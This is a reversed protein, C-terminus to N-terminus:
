ESTLVSGLLKATVDVIPIVRDYAMRTPGIVGLVGVVQDDVNYPATVVSCDGLPSYGSEDGIFIQIGEAHISHDLIHLIDRKTNFAEFLQRLKDMDGMETYGMLNTEGAIVYDDVKSEALVQDAMEMATRMISNMDERAQQMERVLGDRTTSLDHGAFTANLYNATQTLEAPSYTRGTHIIRNEVEQENVILIVLVRNASLPLFEIHRLITQGRRPVMVVGAMQTIGSLLSSAKAIVSEHSSDQTLELKLKDIINHRLPKVTLLYDVFMRYGQDTPIRGASTHPSIILGVDELDSMVNRITAPSLNLEKTKALTRSGVPQGSQIYLEVLIKLLSQARESIIPDNTM